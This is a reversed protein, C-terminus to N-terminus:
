RGGPRRRRALAIKRGAPAHAAGGFPRAPAAAGFNLHEPVGLTAAGFQFPTSTAAPTPAAGFNFHEPVGLTAAGFQFPTSTAAPTPAAGFNFHEPVGLTAAGFQFPTSTAAPTPAAGFNFHEPVGLTAAGFQFPTSTATPAESPETATDSAPASSGFGFSFSSKTAAPKFQSSGFVSTSKENPVGPKTEGCCICKDVASKNSVCCSPCSWTSAKPSADAAAPPTSKSVALPSCAADTSRAAPSCTREPVGLTAAGFQFPTSTATPAESPETATDSAPASSGFGFSFSSKTAAPKFQSSGFVSTSKENPVGPKTEGCCICKDVASKNSVCCSPCSWTSAKPSADAAAPPTSKSVALPSCAADTSRAAPSCAADVVRSAPSCAADVIRPPTPCVSTPFPGRLVPPSFEVIEEPAEPGRVVPASFDFALNKLDVNCFAPFPFPKFM